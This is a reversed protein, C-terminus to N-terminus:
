WWGALMMYGPLWATFIGEIIALYPVFKGLKKELTCELFGAFWLVGWTIWIISFRWDNGMGSIVACPITNIAVFLSYIGYPKLSLGFIGNAAIYLYTFAFLLGPGAAYFEGHLINIINIIFLFIGVLTNLALTSKRDVKLLGCVGNNILAIGVFLLVVGLL